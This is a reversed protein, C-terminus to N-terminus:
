EIVTQIRTVFYQLESIEPVCVFVAEQENGEVFDEVNIKNTEVDVEKLEEYDDSLYYVKDFKNNLHFSNEYNFFPRFNLKELSFQPYKLLFKQVDIQNTNTVLNYM